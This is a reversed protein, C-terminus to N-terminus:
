STSSVVLGSPILCYGSAKLLPWIASVTSEYRPVIAPSRAIRNRKFCTEPASRAAFKRSYIVIFKRIVDPLILDVKQVGGISGGNTQRSGRPFHNASCGREIYSIPRPQRPGPGLAYQVRNSYISYLVAILSLTDMFGHGM